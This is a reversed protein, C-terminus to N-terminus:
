DDRGGELGLKTAIRTAARALRVRLADPKGGLEAAIAAWEQGCERRELLVREEPTM